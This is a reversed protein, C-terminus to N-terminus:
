VNSTSALLYYTVGNIKVEIKNTVANSVSSSVQVAALMEGTSDPLTIETTGANVPAQITVSGTADGMLVLKAM